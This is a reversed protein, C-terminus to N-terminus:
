KGKKCVFYVRESDEKPSNTTLEDYIKIDVFGTQELLEKIDSLEFATENFEESYRDYSDGNWIFMDLLIRVVNNELLENDWVLYYDEEDFVFTNNGLVENHKYITNVDFIFLGNDNLSSYVNEFTSKVDELNELHNISDLSCICADASESLKFDQMKSKILSFNNSVELFKNSAIELMKESLDVGIIRYGKELFPLSISATGCALDLITGCNIGNAMFFGSIYDSRVKYNVNETLEDYLSAFEIYSSM